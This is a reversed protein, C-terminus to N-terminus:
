IEYRTFRAVEIKEGLKAVYDGILQEITKSSDKVWEQTLLSIEQKYKQLKGEIIQSIIKEPKGSNELQKEYIKREKELFDEPIEEPKIYLPRGAAIQLCLEHALERFEKSKAVFDTECRLELLVGIKRNSHIYSEIIGQAVNRTAKDKIIQQGKERLIKKAKQLDGEAQELAKKCEMISIGTEDRLQKLKEISM